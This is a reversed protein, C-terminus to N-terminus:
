GSKGLKGLASTMLQGASDSQLAMLQKAMVYRPYKVQAHVGGKLHSLTWRRLETNPIGLPQFDTQMVRVTQLVRRAHAPFGSKAVSRAYPLDKLEPYAAAIAKSRLFAYSPEEREPLSLFYNLFDHDLFPAYIKEVQPYCGWTSMAIERRGRGFLFWRTIPNHYGSFLRFHQRMRERTAEMSLEEHSGFQASLLHEVGHHKPFFRQIAADLFGEEGDRRWATLMEGKCNVWHFASLVDGLFGDYICSPNESLYASAGLMWGGEDGTFSTLANKVAERELEGKLNHRLVCHPIKLTDSLQRAIKEESHESDAYSTEITYTSSPGKKQRVLEALIHRSDRGGSVPQVFSDQPPPRREISKRFLEIYAETIESDTAVHLSSSFVTQEAIRVGQEDWVLKGGPPLARIHRFLTDEGLLYGIRFFLGISGYDLDAPIGGKLIPLITPSLVIQNEYVGYFLPQIGMRDVSAELRNGDWEWKANIGDDTGDELLVSHGRKWSCQGSVRVEAEERVLSLYPFLDM